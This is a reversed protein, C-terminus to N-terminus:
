GGGGRENERRGSERRRTGKKERSMRQGEVPRKRDKIHATREIMMMM